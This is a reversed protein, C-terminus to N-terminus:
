GAEALARRVRKASIPGRTGLSQAFQSVRLEELMWPVERLAASGPVAALRERYARELEHVTSMRDRDVAVADPLRELRRAAARLYREVDGVRDVGAQAIFGPHVLRALQQRVDARAPQLPVATLPELLRSVERAADLIGVVSSVVAATRAALAGAVHGRLRGFSEEDWAPGGAERMLADAAAVMADDIVAALSGHPAASLALRDANSLRDHVYKSVSPTSLLLLRRTGAWMSAAQAGPTELVKVGVSSGEDVLAPYARVAQGTGRLTVERPLSGVEWSTLGSRELKSSARTLEERLLPRV